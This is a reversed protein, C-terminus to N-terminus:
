IQPARGMMSTRDGPFFPPWTRWDDLDVLATREEAIQGEVECGVGILRWGYRRYYPAMRTGDRCTCACRFLFHQLLEARAAVRRARLERRGISDWMYPWRGRREFEQRWEDFVPWSWRASTLAGLSAKAARPDGRAYAEAWLPYIGEKLGPRAAIEAMVSTFATAAFPDPQM